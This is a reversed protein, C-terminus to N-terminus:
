LDDFYNGAPIDTKSPRQSSLNGAIIEDIRDKSNMSSTDVQVNRVADTLKARLLSPLIGINHIHRDLIEACQYNVPINKLRRYSERDLVHSVPSDPDECRELIFRLTETESSKLITGIYKTLIYPTFPIGYQLINNYILNAYQVNSTVFCVAMLRGLALQKPTINLVHMDLYSQVAASLDAECECARFFEAFIKEGLDGNNAEHSRSAIAYQLISRSVGVNENCARLLNLITIDSFRYLSPNVWLLEYAISLCSIFHCTNQRDLAVCLENELAIAVKRSLYPNPDYMEALWAQSLRSRAEPSELGMKKFHEELLSIMTYNHAM